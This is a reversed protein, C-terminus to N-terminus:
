HIGMLRCFLRFMFYRARVRMARAVVKVVGVTAEAVSSAVCSVAVVLELAGAPQHLRSILWNKGQHLFPCERGCCAYAGLFWYM